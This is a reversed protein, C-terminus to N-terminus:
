RCSGSNCSLVLAGSEDLAAVAYTAAAGPVAAVFARLGKDLGAGAAGREDLALTPAVVHAAGARLEAKSAAAPLVGFVWTRDAGPDYYSQVRRTALERPTRQPAAVDCRTGSGGGPVDLFSAIVTVRGYACSAASLRWAIGDVTGAAVYTLRTSRDPQVAGPARLQAPLDPIAPGRLVDRTAVATSAVAALAVGLVLPRAWRRPALSHAPAALGRSAVLGRSAALTRPAALLRRWWPARDARAFGARLRAGLEDVVRDPDRPATMRAVRAAVGAAV